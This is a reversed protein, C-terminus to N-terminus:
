LMLSRDDLINVRPVIRIDTLSSTINSVGIAVARKQGSAFQPLTYQGISLLSGNNYLLAILSTNWFGFPSKNVITATVMAEVSEQDVSTFVVNQSEISFLQLREREIPLVIKRWEVNEVVLAFPPLLPADKVFALVPNEGPLAFTEQPESIAAGGSTFYYRLSFVVWASNSNVIASYLDASREGRQLVVVSGASLPLPSFSLAPDSAIIANETGELVGLRHPEYSSVFFAVGAILAGFLGILCVGTLVWIIRFFVLRREYMWTALALQRDTLQDGM